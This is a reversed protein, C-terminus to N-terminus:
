ASYAVAHEARADRKVTRIKKGREDTTVPQMQPLYGNLNWLICAHLKADRKSTVLDLGITEIAIGAQLNLWTRKAV